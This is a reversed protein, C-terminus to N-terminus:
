LLSGTLFRESGGIWCLRVFGSGIGLVVNVLVVREREFYNVKIKVSSAFLFFVYRIGFYLM